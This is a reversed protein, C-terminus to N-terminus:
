EDIEGRNVRSRRWREKEVVRDVTERYTKKRRLEIGGYNKHFVKVETPLADAFTKGLELFRNLTDMTWVDGGLNAVTVWLDDDSLEKMGQEIGEQGLEREIVDNHMQEESFVAM